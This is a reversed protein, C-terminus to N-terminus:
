EKGIYDYRISKLLQECYLKHNPSSYEEGKCNRDYLKIKEMKKRRAEKTEQRKRIRVNIKKLFDNIKPDMKLNLEHYNMGETILRTAIQFFHRELAIKLVSNGAKDLKMKNVKGTRLLYNVINLNNKMVALHLPTYGSKNLKNPNFDKSILYDIMELNGSEVAIHIPQGILQIHSNFRIISDMKHLEYEKLMIDICEICNNKVAWEIPSYSYERFGIEKSKHFDYLRQPNDMILLKLKGLDRSSIVDFIDPIVTDQVVTDPLVTDPLVTDPLVTDPLVTDPVDSLDVDDSLDVSSLEDSSKSAEAVATEDPDEFEESDGIYFSGSGLQNLNFFAKTKKLFSGQDKLTKLIEDGSPRDRWDRNLMNMILKQLKNYLKDNEFYEDEPNLSSKKLKIDYVNTYNLLKPDRIKNVDYLEDDSIQDFVYKYVTKYNSVPSGNDIDYTEEIWGLPKRNYLLEYFVCGLSYIDCSRLVSIDGIQEYSLMIEPAIYGITSKYSHLNCKSIDDDFCGEGLDIIGIEYTKPNIMINEPKIDLHVFHLQKHLDDLARVCNIMIQKVTDLPAFQQSRIYNDIFEFLDIGEFYNTIMWRGNEIIAIPCIIFPNCVFKGDKTLYERIRKLIKVDNLVNYNPKKNEAIVVNMKDHKDEAIYVHKFAGYPLYKLIKYEKNDLYYTKGIELSQPLEEM